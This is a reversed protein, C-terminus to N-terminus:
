SPSNLHTPPPPPPPRPMQLRYNSTPLSFCFGATHAAATHQQQTSACARHGAQQRLKVKTDRLNHASFAGIAIHSEFHSTFEPQQVVTFTRTRATATIAVRVRCGDRMKAGSVSRPWLRVGETALLLAPARSRLRANGQTYSPCHSVSVGTTCTGCALPPCSSSRVWGPRWSTMRRRSLGRQSGRNSGDGTSQTSPCM